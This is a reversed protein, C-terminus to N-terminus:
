NESGWGWRVNWTGTMRLQSRVEVPRLHAVMHASGVRGGRKSGEGLPRSSRARHAPQVFSPMNPPAHVGEWAALASAM